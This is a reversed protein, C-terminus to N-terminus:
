ETARHSIVNDYSSLVVQEILIDDDSLEVINIFKLSIHFLACIKKFIYILPKLLFKIINWLLNIPQEEIPHNNYKENLLLQLKKLDEWSSNRLSIHVKNKIYNEIDDIKYIILPNFIRYEISADISTNYPIILKEEERFSHAHMFIVQKKINVVKITNILPIKFYLGTAKKVSFPKWLLELVINEGEKCIYFPFLEEKFYNLLNILIESISISTSM